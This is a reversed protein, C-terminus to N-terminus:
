KLFVGTIGMGGKLTVDLISLVVPYACMAAILAWVVGTPVESSFSEVVMATDTGMDVYFLVAVITSSLITKSHSSICTILNCCNFSKSGGGGGGSDAHLAHPKAGDTEEWEIKANRSM